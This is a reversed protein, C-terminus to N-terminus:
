RPVGFLTGHRLHPDYRAARLIADAVEPFYPDSM